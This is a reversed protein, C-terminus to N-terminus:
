TVCYDESSSEKKFLQQFFASLFEPESPIRVCKEKGTQVHAVAYRCLKSLILFAIITFHM